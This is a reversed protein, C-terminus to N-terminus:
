HGRPDSGIGRLCAGAAHGGFGAALVLHHAGPEVVRYRAADRTADMWDGACPVELWPMGPLRRTRASMAAIVLSLLGAAGLTHGLAGKAAYVQPTHRDGLVRGLAALEHPDHEPTGPAHPHLVLHAANRPLSQQAVRQVAAMDPNPRILDHPDNAVATATLEVARPPLPAGPEIRQLLVAAGAEALVFGARREDLPLARYGGRTLPALVGLRRYSHIFLPHLAAECSVVLAQRPASAERLLYRRANDLAVLSSACAAVAHSRVHVGARKALHHALYAQPGLALALLADARDADRRRVRTTQLMEAAAIMRLVAGKSTGLFTPLGELAAGAETAAERTAREALEVTPDTATHQAAAVLGLSRALDVADVDPPLHAARDTLTRGACLAGFTEWASAGLPTVLGVGAIVIM